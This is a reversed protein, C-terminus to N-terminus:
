FRFRLARTAGDKAKALEDICNRVASIDVTEDILHESPAMEIIDEGPKPVKLVKLHELEELLFLREDWMIKWKRSNLTKEIDFKVEDAQAM